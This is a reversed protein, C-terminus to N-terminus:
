QAYAIRFRASKENGIYDAYSEAFGSRGPHLNVVITSDATLIKKNADFTAFEVTVTRFHKDTNNKIEVTWIVSGDVGHDPDVRWNHSVIELPPPDEALAPLALLFLVFSFIFIRKM